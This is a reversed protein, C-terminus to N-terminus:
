DEIALAVLHLEREKLAFYLTLIQFTVAYLQRPTEPSHNARYVDRSSWTGEGLMRKIYSRTAARHRRSLAGVRRLSELKARRMEAAKRIAVPCDDLDGYARLVPLGELVLASDLAFSDLTFAMVDRVEADLCDPIKLHQLYPYFREPGRSLDTAIDFFDALKRRVNRAEFRTVAHLLGQVEAKACYPWYETSKLMVRCSELHRDGSSIEVEVWVPLEGPVVEESIYAQQFYHTRAPSAPGSYVPLRLRDRGEFTLDLDAESVTCGECQARLRYKGRTIREFRFPGDTVLEGVPKEWEGERFLLVRVNHLTGGTGEVVQGIVTVTREPLPLIDKRHLHEHRPIRVINRVEIRLTEADVRRQEFRDRVARLAAEALERDSAQAYCSNTALIIVLIFWIAARM